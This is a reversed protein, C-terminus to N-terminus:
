YLEATLSASPTSLLLPYMADQSAIDTQNLGEVRLQHTLVHNITVKGDLSEIDDCINEKDNSM